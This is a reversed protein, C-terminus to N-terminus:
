YDSKAIKGVRRFCSSQKEQTIGSSDLGCGEKQEQTEWTVAERIM